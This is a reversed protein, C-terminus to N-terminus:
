GANVNLQGIAGALWSQQAQMNGMVVELNTFQRQLTARRLELRRNLSLINDSLARNETERGKVAMAITGTDAKTAESVSATLRTGLAGDARFLAEVGEPDAALAATFAATDFTLAGSRTTQIGVMGGSSISLGDVPYSVAELLRDRLARATSNGALAGATAGNLGTKTLTDIETLAANVADVFTSVRETLAAPDAAVDVTVTEGPDTLQTVTLSLGDLVGSFTNTASSITYAGASGGGVQIVADQGTSLLQATAGGTFAPDLATLDAAFAGAAGGEESSLQLKIGAGTDVLNARVALGATDNIQDALQQLTTGDAIAIAMGDVTIGTAAGSANVVTDRSAATGTTVVAHRSALSQVAFTVSGATAAAGATATVHSATSTAVHPTFTRTADTLAKMADAVASLKTSIGQFATIAKSNATQRNELRVVPQRELSMLQNIITTTDLGSSLGDIGFTSM